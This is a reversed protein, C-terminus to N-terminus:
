ILVWSSRNKMHHLAPFAVHMILFTPMYSLATHGSHVIWSHDGMESSVMSRTSTFHRIIVENICGVGSDSPWVMM